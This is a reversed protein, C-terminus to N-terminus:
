KRGGKPIPKVEAYEAGKTEATVGKLATDSVFAKAATVGVTVCQLFQDRTVLKAFLAPSIVNVTKAAIRAVIGPRNGRAPVTVEKRNEEKMRVLLAARAKDYAKEADASISKLHFVEEVDQELTTRLERASEPEAIRRPRRTRTRAEM